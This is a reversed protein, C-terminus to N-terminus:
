AERLIPWTTTQVDLYHPKLYCYMAPHNLGNTRCCSLRRTRCNASPKRSSSRTLRFRMTSAPPSWRSTRPPVAQSCRCARMQGAQKLQYSRKLREARICLEAASKATFDVSTVLFIKTRFCQLLTRWSEEGHVASRLSSISQTAVIPILSPPKARVYTRRRVSGTAPPKSATTSTSCSCSIAGRTNLRPPSAHSARWSPGNPLGTEADSRTRPRPGSEPRNSLEPDRGQGM